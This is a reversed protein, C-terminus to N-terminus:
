GILGTAMRLVKSSKGGFGTFQIGKSQVSYEETPSELVWEIEMSPNYVNTLYHLEQNSSGRWLLSQDRLQSVFPGTSVIDCHHLLETVSHDISTLLEKYTHGSFAFVTLTPRQQRFLKITELVAASQEFPEGGSFTVGEINPISLLWESIESPKVLSAATHPHTPASYCGPCGITCGQVWIVARVGPGNARSRSMTASVNLLLEGMSKM